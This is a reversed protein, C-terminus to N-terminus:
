SAQHYLLLPSPPAQFSFELAQLSGLQVSEVKNNKYKKRNKIYSKCTPAPCACQYHYQYNNEIPIREIVFMLAQFLM